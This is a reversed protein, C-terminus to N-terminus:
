LSEGISPSQFGSDSDGVTVGNDIQFSLPYRIDCLHNYDSNFPQLKVFNNIFSVEQSLSPSAIIDIDALQTIISQRKAKLEDVSKALVLISANVGCVMKGSSITEIAENAMDKYDELHAIDQPRAGADEANEEEFEIDARRRKIMLKAKERPITKISLRLNDIQLNFNDSDIRDPLKLINLVSGYTVQAPLGFIEVGANSMEFYGGFHSKIEQKVAGLIPTFNREVYSNSDYSIEYSPFLSSVYTYFTLERSARVGYNRIINYLSKESEMIKRSDVNVNSLSFLSQSAMNIYSKFVDKIGMSDADEISAVELNVALITFNQISKTIYKSFIGPVKEYDPDWLKVTDIMNKKVDEPTLVKEVNFMTFKIEPRQTGLSTALSELRDIHKSIGAYSLTEYNLSDVIYFATITKNNILINNGLIGIKNQSTAYINGKM